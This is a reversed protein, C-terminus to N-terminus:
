KSGSIRCGAMGTSPPERCYFLRGNMRNDCAELNWIPVLDKIGDTWKGVSM